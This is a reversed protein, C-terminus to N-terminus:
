EEQQQEDQKWMEGGVKNWEVEDEQKWMEDGIKKTKEKESQEMGPAKAKLNLLDDKGWMEGEEGADINKEEGFFINHEAM